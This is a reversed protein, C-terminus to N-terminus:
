YPTLFVWTAPYLDYSANRFSNRGAACALGFSPSFERRAPIAGVADDSILVPAVGSGGDCSASRAHHLHDRM